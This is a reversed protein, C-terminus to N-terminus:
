ELFLVDSEMGNLTDYFVNEWRNNVALFSNSYVIYILPCQELIIRQYEDWIAKAKDYELAYTGAEYLRDIEAEWETAPTKQM